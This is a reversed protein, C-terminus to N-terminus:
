QWPGEWHYIAERIAFACQKMLAEVAAARANPSDPDVRFAFSIPLERPIFGRSDREESAIITGTEVGRYVFVEDGKRFALLTTWTARRGVYLHLSAIHAKLHIGIDVGEIDLSTDDVLIFEGLQSAKHVVVTLPDAQIESLEIRSAAISCDYAAFLQQFERLKGENSTNLRWTEGCHATAFFLLLALKKM